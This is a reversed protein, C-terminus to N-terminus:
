THALSHSLSPPCLLIYPLPSLSKSITQFARYAASVTGGEAREAPGRLQLFISEQRKLIEQGAPASPKVTVRNIDVERVRVNFTSSMEYATRLFTEHRGLPCLHMPPHLPRLM